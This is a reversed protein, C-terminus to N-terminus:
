LFDLNPCQWGSYLSPLFDSDIQRSNTMTEEFLPRPLNLKDAWDRYYDKKCPHAPAVANLVPIHLETKALQLIINILDLRHILNIASNGDPIGVRGALHNIPHRQGGILGGPRIIQVRDSFTNVLHNEVELLWQGNKSIPKPKTFETIKGTNSGYVSTSSIFILKSKSDLLIKEVFKKPVLALLTPTSLFLIDCPSEPFVGTVFNFDETHTGWFCNSNKDFAKSLELGLWGLGIIGWTKM